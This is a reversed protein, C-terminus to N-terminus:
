DFEQVHGEPFADPHYPETYVGHILPNALCRSAFQRASEADLGGVDYRRGTRVRVDCGVLSRIALEVAEADPDTVGPLPHVEIMSSARLPRAGIVVAETVPHCLLEQAIRKLSAPDIDGELLYVSSSHISDPLTDLAAHRASQLAAHGRPDGAGETPQVEIRHVNM